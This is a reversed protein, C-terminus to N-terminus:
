GVYSLLCQLIRGHITLYHWSLPFSTQDHSRSCYAKWEVVASAYRELCFEFMFLAYLLLYGLGDFDLAPFLRCEYLFHSIGSCNPCYGQWRPANVVNGVGDEYQAYTYARPRKDLCACCRITALQCGIAHKHICAQDPSAVTNPFIATSKESYAPPRESPYSFSSLANSKTELPVSASSSALVSSVNSRLASM